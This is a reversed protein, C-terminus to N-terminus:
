LLTYLVSRVSAGSEATTNYFYLGRGAPIRVPRKLEGHLHAVQNIAKAILYIDGDAVSTPASAKSLLSMLYGGNTSFIQADWLVIGNVNAGPAVVTETAAAGLLSNVKHAAGYSFGEERVKVTNTIDTITALQGGNVTVTGSLRNYIAEDDGAFIKITQANTSGFIFEKGRSEEALKLGFGAGIGQCKQYGNKKWVQVDLPYGGDNLILFFKYDIILRTENAGGALLVDYTRM